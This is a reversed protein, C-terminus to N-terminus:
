IYELLPSFRQVNVSWNLCSSECCPRGRLTASLAGGFDSVQHVLGVSNM